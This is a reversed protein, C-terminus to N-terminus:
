GLRLIDLSGWQSLRSSATSDTKKKGSRKSKKSKEIECAGKAVVVARGDGHALSAVVAGEGPGGVDIVEDAEMAGEKLWPEKWVRVMGDTGGAWVQQDVDGYIDATIRIDFGLKQNTLAKRGACHGLALSFNRSDYILITDSKREAICLYIGDYSWKMHTVGKGEVGKVDRDHITTSSMIDPLDFHTVEQGTNGDYLGVYRTRSGAALVGANYYPTSPSLALATIHGKFGRGGGKLKNRKSPITRIDTMPKDKRDMDFISIVDQHGAYFYNGCHSYALSLPSHIAETLPCVMKYAALKHSIDVPLAPDQCPRGQSFKSMNYLANYLHVYQDRCGLLVTTKHMDNLDFRPNVAFSWIPDTAQFVAYPELGRTPEDDLMYPNFPYVTFKRSADATFICSGDPSIQADQI